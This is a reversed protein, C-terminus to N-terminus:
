HFFELHLPDYACGARLMGVVTDKWEEVCDDAPPMTDGETGYGDEGASVREAM